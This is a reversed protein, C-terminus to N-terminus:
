SRRVLAESFIQQVRWFYKKLLMPGFRRTAKRRSVTAKPFLLCSLSRRLNTGRSGDRCKLRIMQQPACHRRRPRAAETRTGGAMKPCVFLGRVPATEDTPALAVVDLPHGCSARKPESHHRNSGTTSNQITGPFLFELSRYHRTAMDSIAIEFAWYGRMPNYLRCDYVLKLLM